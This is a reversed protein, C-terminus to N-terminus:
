GIVISSKKYSEKSSKAIQSSKKLELVSLISTIIGISGLIINIAVRTIAVYGHNFSSNPDYYFAQVCYRMWVLEPDTMGLAANYLVILAAQITVTVSCVIIVKIKKIEYFPFKIRIFRCISLATSTVM